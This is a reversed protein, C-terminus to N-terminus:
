FRAGNNQRMAMRARQVSLPMHRGISIDDFDIYSDWRPAWDLGAGGHFTSFFFADVPAKNGSRWVMDRKRTVLRGDM